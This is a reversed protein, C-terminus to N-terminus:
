EDVYKFVSHTDTKELPGYEVLDKIRDRLTEQNRVDTTRRYLKQLRTLSVKDPNNKALVALVSEDRSDFHPSEVTITDEQTVGVHREVQKLRDNLRRIERYQRENEDLLHMLIELLDEVAENDAQDGLRNITDWVEALKEHDQEVQTPTQDSDSAAM